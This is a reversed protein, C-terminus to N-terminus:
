GPWLWSSGMALLLALFIVALAVGIWRGIEEGIFTPQRKM